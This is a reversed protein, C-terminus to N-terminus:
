RLEDLKEENNRISAYDSAITANERTLTAVQNSVIAIVQGASVSDGESVLVRELIGSTTAYVQYQDKSVVVGSAYVSQTISREEPHIADKPKSCSVLTCLCLLAIAANNM